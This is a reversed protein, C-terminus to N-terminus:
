ALTCSNMRFRYLIYAILCIGAYVPISMLLWSAQLLMFRPIAWFRLASFATILTLVGTGLLWYQLKKLRRPDTPGTRKAAHWTLFGLCLFALTCHLLPTLLQGGLYQVCAYNQLNAIDTALDGSSPFYFNESDM